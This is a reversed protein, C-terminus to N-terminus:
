APGKERYIPAKGPTTVMWVRAARAQAMSGGFWPMM